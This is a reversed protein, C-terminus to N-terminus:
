VGVGRQECVVGGGRGGGGGGGGGGEGEREREKNREWGRQLKHSPWLSLSPSLRPVQHVNPQWQHGPTWVCLATLPSPRHLATFESWLIAAFGSISLM